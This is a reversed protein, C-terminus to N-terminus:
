AEPIAEVEQYQGHGIVYEGVPADTSGKRGSFSVTGNDAKSYGTCNYYTTKSGNPWTATVTKMLAEYRAQLAALDNASQHASAAGPILGILIGIGIAGLLRPM